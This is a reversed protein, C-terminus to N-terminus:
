YEKEMSIEHQLISKRHLSYLLIGIGLVLFIFGLAFLVIKEDLANGYQPSLIYLPTGRLPVYVKAPLSISESVALLSM